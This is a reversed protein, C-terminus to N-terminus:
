ATPRLAQDSLHLRPRAPGEVPRKHAKELHSESWDPGMSRLMLRAVIREGEHPQLARGPPAILPDSGPDLLDDDRFVRLPVYEPGDARLTM